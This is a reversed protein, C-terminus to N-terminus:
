SHKNRVRPQCSCITRQTLSPSYDTLKKDTISESLRPREHSFPFIAYDQSAIQSDWARATGTHDDQHSGDQAAVMASGAYYIGYYWTIIATRILDYPNGSLTSIRHLASLQHFGMLMQEFVVTDSTRNVERRSVKGKYFLSLAEDSFNDETCLFSLANLWNAAALLSYSPRTRVGEERFRQYLWQTM